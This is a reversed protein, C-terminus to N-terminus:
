RGGAGPQLAGHRVEYTRGRWTHRRRRASAVIAPVVLMDFLPSLWYTIPRKPYARATGGLVGLRVLLLLGNLRGLAGWRRVLLLAGVIPLPMAQALVLEVLGFWGGIGFHEDRLPLSRTWGALAQRVGGYMATAVLGDTEYFGVPVGAAALTRALTVDECLSARAVRFGGVSQLVDRRILCCQGNAQVVSPDRTAHGPIGFRYVLTTLLAPHVLAEAAGSLVQLTAVSLAPVGYRCAHAVLSRALAPQVSVDADITLLWRTSPDARQLGVELGCAKGNWGDPIPGTEVLRVRPDRAAYARAVDATGDRSGGDVVVIEAVEPGLASLGDLCAPLRRAEDLVPVIVSVGREPVLGPQAGGIRQGRGSALLRAMVRLGAVAQVLLLLKVRM